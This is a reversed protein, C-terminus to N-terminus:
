LFFEWAKKKQWLLWGKTSLLLFFFLGWNERLGQLGESSVPSFLSSSPIIKKKKEETKGGSTICGSSGHRYCCSIPSRGRLSSLTSKQLRMIEQLTSLKARGWHAMKMLQTQKEMESREPSRIVLWQAFRQHLNIKKEECLRTLPAM